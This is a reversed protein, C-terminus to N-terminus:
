VTCKKITNTESPYSSVLGDLMQLCGYVSMRILVTLTTGHPSFALFASTWVFSGSTLLTTKWGSTGAGNKKNKSIKFIKFNKGDFFIKFNSVEIFTKLFKPFTKDDQCLTIFM